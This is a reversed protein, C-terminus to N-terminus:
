DTNSGYRQKGRSPYPHHMSLSKYREVCYLLKHQKTLPQLIFVFPSFSGHCIDCDHRGYVLPSGLHDSHDRPMHECLLNRSDLSLPSRSLTKDVFRLSTPAGSTARVVISCIMLMYDSFFYLAMACFVTLGDANRKWLDRGAFERDSFPLTRPHNSISQSFHMSSLGKALSCHQHRQVTRCSDQM